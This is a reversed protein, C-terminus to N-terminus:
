RDRVEIPAAGLSQRRSPHFEAWAPYMGCHPEPKQAGDDVFHGRRQNAGSPPRRPENRDPPGGTTRARQPCRPNRELVQVPVLLRCDELSCRDANRHDLATLDIGATRVCRQQAWSGVLRDIGPCSRRARRIGCRAPHEQSPAGPFIGDGQKRTPDSYLMGMAVRAPPIPGQGAGILRLLESAVGAGQSYGLLGFKTNPCRAAEDAIIKSANEVGRAASDKYSTGTFGYDAPYPVYTRDFKDSSTGGFKALVPLIAASLTGSDQKPMSGETSETTGQTVVVHLLACPATSSDAAAPTTDPPTTTPQAAAQTGASVTIAASGLVAMAAYTLRNAKM